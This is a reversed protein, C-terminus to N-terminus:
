KRKRTKRKDPVFWGTGKSLYEAARLYHEPKRNRGIFRHNCFACLIGFIEKTSHDHDLAFRRTGEKWEKQCIACKHEQKEFLENYQQLSIGYTRLYHKNRIKDQNNAVWIKAVATRKVRTAKYWNKKRELLKIKNKHYSKRQAAKTRPTKSSVKLCDKCRPMPKQHDNRIYFESWPKTIKCFSCIKTQM